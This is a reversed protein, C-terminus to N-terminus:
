MRYFSSEYSTQDTLRSAMSDVAETGAQSIFDMAQDTDVTGVGLWMFVTEADSYISRMELLQWNKEAMDNQNICIADIWLWGDFHDQHLQHLFDYLNRGIFIDGDNIQIKISESGPNYDVKHTNSNKPNWCYSLASFPVDDNLSRHEVRLRLRDIPKIVGCLTKNSSTFALQVLRIERKSEDLQEYLFRDSNAENHTDM